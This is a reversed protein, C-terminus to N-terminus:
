WMVGGSVGCVGKSEMVRVIWQWGWASMGVGSMVLVRM